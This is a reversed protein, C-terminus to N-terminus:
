IVEYISITRNDVRGGPVQGKDPRALVAPGSLNRAAGPTGRAKEAFGGM